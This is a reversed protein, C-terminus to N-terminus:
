ESMLYGGDVFWSTMGERKACPLRFRNGIANFRGFGGGGSSTAGDVFRRYGISTPHPSFLGRWASPDHISSYGGIVFMCFATSRHARIM